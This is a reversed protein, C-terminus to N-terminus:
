PNREGSDGVSAVFERIVRAAPEAAVQLVLHPAPLKVVQMEPRARLLSKVVHKRVVRDREGRLYLVPVPCAKFEAITDVALIARGRAAMVAPSVISNAKMLLDRLEPTAYRGLLAKVQAFRPTARFLIPRV